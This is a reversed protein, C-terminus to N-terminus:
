LVIGKNKLRDGVAFAGVAELAQSETVAGVLLIAPAPVEAANKLASLNLRLISQQATGAQSVIVCPTEALWGAAALDSRIKEYNNGPMYIALTADFAPLSSWEGEDQDACSHKGRHGSLFILKSAVKRNTLSIQAAAAAASAATVGPVIEFELGAQRLAAIEEGARGFILPDGGQLRVVTRGARAHEILLTHIEEQSVSKRGCRKGVNTILASSPALGVIEPPVLADHLVVEAVTLLKWAKRTLLEPDGPGAGVFYVKGRMEGPVKGPGRDPGKSFM